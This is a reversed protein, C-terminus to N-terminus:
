RDPRRDAGRVGLLHVDAARWVRRGRAAHRPEPDEGLTRVVARSGLGVVFAASLPLALGLYLGAFLQRRHVPQALLLETFERANYLYMTGFVISVLPVLLLVVNMLSLLRRTAAASGFCRM